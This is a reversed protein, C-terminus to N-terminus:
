IWASRVRPHTAICGAAPLLCLYCPGGTDDEKPQGGARALRLRRLALELPALAPGRLSGRVAQQQLEPQAQVAQQLQGLMAEGEQPSCLGQYGYEAVVNLRGGM